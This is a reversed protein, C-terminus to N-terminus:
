GCLWASDANELYIEEKCEHTKRRSLFKTFVEHKKCREVYNQGFHQAEEVLYMWFFYSYSCLEHSNNVNIYNIFMLRISSCFYLRTKGGSSGWVLYSNKM